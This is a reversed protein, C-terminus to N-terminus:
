RPRLTNGVFAGVLKATDTEVLSGITSDVYKRSNAPKKMSPLKNM